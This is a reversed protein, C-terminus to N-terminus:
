GGRVTGYASGSGGEAAYHKNIAQQLEIRFSLRPSIEFGTTFRLEDLSALNQPAAMAVILRKHETRLPLVCMREAMSRPILKLSAPNPITSACDIYPIHSVEELAAGLDEKAVLGRELMLEGLHIVKGQQEGIVKQLDAPSIKGRDQLVEGIKKKKM